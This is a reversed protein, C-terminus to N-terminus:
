YVKLGRRDGATCASYLKDSKKNVKKGAGPDLFLPDQPQTVVSVIFFQLCVIKAESLSAFENNENNDFQIINYKM